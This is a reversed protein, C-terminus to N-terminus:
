QPKVAGAAAMAVVVPAAAVAVPAPTTAAVAEPAPPLLPVLVGLLGADLLPLL